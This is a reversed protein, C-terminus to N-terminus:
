GHAACCPTPDPVEFPAVAGDAGLPRVQLVLRGAALLPRVHERTVLAVGATPTGAIGVVAEVASLAPVDDAAVTGVLRDQGGFVVARGGTRDRLAAAASAAAARWAPDGHAAGDPGAVAAGLAVALGAADVPADQGPGALQVSGAWRGDVVHTCALEAPGVVAVARALLHELEARDTHGAALGLVATM